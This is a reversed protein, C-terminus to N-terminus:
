KIWPYTKHVKKLFKKVPLVGLESIIGTINGAPIEEFAPNHVKIYKSTTGWIEKPDRQEIKLKKNSYKWSNTIIYVPIKHKKALESIAYSGIKNYVSGNPTIMDCGLLVIDSERIAKDAASDVHYNVKIKEKALEIATKQGQYLPRTETNSVSFRKGHKKANILSKTVTSSHCHTFVNKIYKKNKIHIASILLVRKQMNHLYHYATDVDNEKAFKIANILCPETPRADKLQKIAKANFELKLAKLGWKAVNTAGQIKLSKIDKVIQNFKM